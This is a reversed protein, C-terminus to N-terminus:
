SDQWAVYWERLEPDDLFPKDLNRADGVVTAPNGSVIQFTAVDKSVMAGAYIIAGDGITVGSFIKAGAGVYTYKGICVPAARYGKKKSEPVDLYHRGYLRIAIHSSHTFVGVGAALQVGEGIELGGTGDLINYHGVYVNDSIAIKEPHYLLATDSIRTRGRFEGSSDQYGLIMRPAKLARLREVMVHRLRAPLLRGIVAFM